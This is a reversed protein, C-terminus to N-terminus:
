PKHRANSSAQESVKRLMDDATRVHPQTVYTSIVTAMKKKGPKDPDVSAAKPGAQDGHPKRIVVGKKDVTAVTVVARSSVETPAKEEYFRDVENCVDGM